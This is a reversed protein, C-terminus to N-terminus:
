GCYCYRVDYRGDDEMELIMYGRSSGGRPLSISGPNLIRPGSPSDGFASEYFRNFESISDGFSDYPVHTHGLFM